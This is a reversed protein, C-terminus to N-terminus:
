VGELQSGGLRTRLVRRAMHLHVRSSGPSIGLRSSVEGHNMGKVDHLVFVEKQTPTLGGMADTLVEKLEDVEIGMDSKEEAALGPFSDLPEAARKKKSSLWSLARNRVISLLWSRFSAPDRLQGIKRL